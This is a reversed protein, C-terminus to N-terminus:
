QYNTLCWITRYLWLFQFAYFMASRKLSELPSPKTVASYQFIWINTCFHVYMKFIATCKVSLSDTVDYDSWGFINWIVKLIVRLNSFRHPISNCMVNGECRLSSQAFFREQFTEILILVQLLNKFSKKLLTRTWSVVSQSGSSKYSGTLCVSNNHFLKVVFCNM